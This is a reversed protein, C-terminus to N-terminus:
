HIEFNNYVKKLESHRINKIGQKKLNPILKM